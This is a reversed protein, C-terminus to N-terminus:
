QKSGRLLYLSELFSPPYHRPTELLYVALLYVSRPVVERLQDRTFGHMRASRTTPRQCVISTVLNLIVAGELQTITTVM